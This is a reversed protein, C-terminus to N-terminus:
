KKAFKSVAELDVSAKKLAMDPPLGRACWRLANKGYASDIAEELSEKIWELAKNGFRVNVIELAKDVGLRSYGDMGGSRLQLFDKFKPNPNALFRKMDCKLTPLNALQEPDPAFDPDPKWQVKDSETPAQPMGTARSALADAIKNSERPVWFITFGEPLAQSAKRIRKALAYLRPNNIGYEGTLQKVVLESDSRIRVGPFDNESALTVAKLVALYEAENNTGVGVSESAKAIENQLADALFVGIGMQGPNGACAGDTWAQCWNEPLAPLNVKKKKNKKKKQGM